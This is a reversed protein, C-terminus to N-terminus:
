QSLAKSINNWIQVYIPDNDLDKLFDAANKESGNKVYNPYVNDNFEKLQKKWWNGDEVNLVSMASSSDFGSTAQHVKNKDLHEDAYCTSIWRAFLFMKVNTM